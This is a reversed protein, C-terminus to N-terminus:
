VNQKVKSYSSSVEAIIFNLVVICTMLIIVIWTAWFCTSEFRNLHNIAGFDFDSLSFRIIRLVNAAFLTIHKYEFGPYENFSFGRNKKSTSVEKLVPQLNEFDGHQYNGVQLIGLINSLLVLLFAYFFLFPRLDSVVNTIMIVLETMSSFIRLFFFTKFMLMITTIIMTTQCQYSRTDYLGYFDYQYYIMVYGCWIHMQDLYNWGELFYDCGQKIMQRFDYITAFILCACM